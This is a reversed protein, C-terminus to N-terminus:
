ARPHHPFVVLCILRQESSNVLLHSEGEQCDAFCGLNMPRNERGAKVHGSGAVVYYGAPGTAAAEQGPEMCLLDCACGATRCLQVRQPRASNFRVKAIANLVNM